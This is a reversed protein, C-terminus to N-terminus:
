LTWHDSSDLFVQGHEAAFAFEEDSSVPGQSLKEAIHLFYQEISPPTVVLVQGGQEGSKYKHPMHTPVRIFDGAAGELTQEGLTFTYAGELIYFCEQGNPHYHLAPGTFPPHTMHIVSYAQNTEDPLTKFGMRTGRFDITTGEAPTLKM